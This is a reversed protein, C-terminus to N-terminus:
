DPLIMEEYQTDNLVTGCSPCVWEVVEVSEGDILVDTTGTDVLVGGCGKHITKPVEGFFWQDQNPQYAYHSTM